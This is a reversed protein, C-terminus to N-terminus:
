QFNIIHSCLLKLPEKGGQNLKDYLFLPMKISFVVYSSLYLISVSDRKAKDNIDKIQEISKKLDDENCEDILASNKINKDKNQKKNKRNRIEADTTM